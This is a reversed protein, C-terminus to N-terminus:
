LLRIVYFMCGSDKDSLWGNASTVVEELPDTSQRVKHRGQFPSFHVRVGGLAECAAGTWQNTAEIVMYGYGLAQYQRASAALLEFADAKDLKDSRAVMYFHGVKGGAYAEQFAPYHDCLARLAETDQEELMALIPDWYSFVASLFPDNERPDPTDEIVPMTENLAGGIVQGMQDLIVVSQTLTEERIQMTTKPHAPDTLVRLRIFWYILRERTWPGFLASGFPDTHHTEMLGAPPYLPPQLYRLEPERRAFATGMVEAMHLLRDPTLSAATTTVHQRSRYPQAQAFDVVPLDPPLHQVGHLAVDGTRPYKCHPLLRPSETSCMQDDAGRRNM